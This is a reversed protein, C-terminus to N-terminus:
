CLTCPRDPGTLELDLAELVDTIAVVFAPDQPHPNTPDSIRLAVVLGLVCDDEDVVVSGSDGQRAFPDNEETGTVFYGRLYDRRVATGDSRPLEVALSSPTTDLLGETLGPTNMGRKFVVLDQGEPLDNLDRPRRSTEAERIVRNFSVGPEASVVSADVEIERCPDEPHSALVRGITPDSPLVAVGEGLLVETLTEDHATSLSGVVHAATLMLQEKEGRRVV